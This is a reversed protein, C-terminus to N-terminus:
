HRMRANYSVPQTNMAQNQALSAAASHRRIIPLPNNIPGAARTVEIIVGLMEPGVGRIIRGIM